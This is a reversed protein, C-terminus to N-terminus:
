ATGNTWREDGSRRTTSNAALLSEEGQEASCVLACMLASCLWYVYSSGASNLVPNFAMVTLGSLTILFYMALQARLFSQKPEGSVWARTLVRWAAYLISLLGLVFPIAALLGGNALIDLPDSHTPLSQTTTNVSFLDFHDVSPAAFGRGWLWSALFRDIAIQYTHMRYVTNGDPLHSKTAEYLLVVGLIAVIGLLAGLIRRLGARIRDPDKATRIMLEDVFVWTFIMLLVIYGTIKNPAVAALICLLVGVVRVALNRSAILPLAAAVLVVHEMGHYLMNGFHLTNMLVGLLSVGVVAMTISRVLVSPARSTRILWLNVPGGLAVSVGMLLFSHDIAFAFRAYLSGGIVFAAFLILGLYTRIVQGLAPRLDPRFLLRGAVCLLTAAIALVTPLHRTLSRRWLEIAFPDVAWLVQLAIAFVVLGDTFDISMRRSAAPVPQTVLFSMRTM